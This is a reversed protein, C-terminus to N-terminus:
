LRRGPLVHVHELADSSHGFLQKNLLHFIPGHRSNVTYATSSRDIDPFLHFVVAHVLEHALTHMLMQLRSTCVVGECNIPADPSLERAWRWCNIYIVNDQTDFYALWAADWSQVVRCHLAGPDTAMGRSRAAAVSPTGVATTTTTTTSSSGQAPAKSAATESEGGVSRQDDVVGSSPASSAPAQQMCVSSGGGDSSGTRVGASRTGVATMCRLLKGACFQADIVRLLADCNADTLQKGTFQQQWCGGKATGAAAEVAHWAGTIHYAGGQWGRRKYVKHLFSQLQKLEHQPIGQTGSGDAGAAPAGKSGNGSGKSAKKSSRGSTSPPQAQGQADHQQSHQQQQEAPLRRNSPKRKAQLSV